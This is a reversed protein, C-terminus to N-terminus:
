KRYVYIMIRQKKRVSFVIHTQANSYFGLSDERQGERARHRKEVYIEEKQVHFMHVFRTCSFSKKLDFQIMDFLVFLVHIYSSLSFFCCCCCVYLASLSGHATCVPSLIFSCMSLLFSTPLNNFEAYKQISIM